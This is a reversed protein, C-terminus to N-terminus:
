IQSTMQGMWYKLQEDLYRNLIYETEAPTADAERHPEGNKTHGFAEQKLRTVQEQTLTFDRGQVKITGLRRIKSVLDAGDSVHGLIDRLRILNEGTLTLKPEGEKLYLNIAREIIKAFVHGLNNVNNDPFKEVFKLALADPIEVIM